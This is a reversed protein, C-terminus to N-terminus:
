DASKKGESDFSAQFIYETFGWNSVTWTGEEDFTAWGNEYFKRQLAESDAERLQPTYPNERDQNFEIMKDSIAAGLEIKQNWSFENFTM